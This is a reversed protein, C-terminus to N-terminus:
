PMMRWTIAARDGCAADAQGEAAIVVKGDIRGAEQYADRCVTRGLNKVTV